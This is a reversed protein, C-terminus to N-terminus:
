FEWDEGVEQMFARYAMVALVAVCLYRLITM